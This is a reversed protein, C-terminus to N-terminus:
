FPISIEEDKFLNNPLNSTLSKTLARIMKYNESHWCTDSLSNNLWKELQNQLQPSNLIVEKEEVTWQRQSGDSVAEFIYEVEPSLLNM